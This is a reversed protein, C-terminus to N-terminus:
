RSQQQNHLPPFPTGAEFCNSPEGGTNLLQSSLSSEFVLRGLVRLINDDGAGHSGVRM